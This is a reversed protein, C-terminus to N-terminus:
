QTIILKHQSIFDGQSVSVFYNGSALGTLDLSFINKGVSASFDSTSVVAGQLNYVSVSVPASYNCSVVVNTSNVAPSPYMGGFSISATNDNTITATVVDSYEFAGDNDLQKLRYYYMVNVQATADTYSYTSVTTTNDNGNVFGLTTWNAGDTSREVNFGDNNIELATAWNVNIASEAVEAKVYIMEVPLPGQSGGGFGGGGGSFTNVSYEAVHNGNGLSNYSWTPATMKDYLTIDDSTINMHGNAPNPDKGSAGNVKYFTLDEYANTIPAWGMQAARGTVDAYDTSDFYFRVDVPTNPQMKPTVDWYRGMVVWSNVNNSVYPANSGLILHGLNGYGETLEVKLTFSDVGVTGIDNGNKKLSLLLREDGSNLTNDQDLYYNTWGEATVCERNAYYTGQAHMIETNADMATVTITDTAVNCGGTVTWVMTNVGSSLATLNATANSANDITGNGQIFSWAGTGAAPTTAHITGATGCFNANSGADATVPASTSITINNSTANATTACAANGTMVLSVVDNNNPTTSFSASNSGANVGNVQWQYAPASGGNGPTATFNVVTGNCVNTASANISVTPTVIPNVTMTISNALALPTTSCAANGTMILSVVDNNNLSSNTYTASNSGVNANNLKWQYSPTGGNVPTATFTTSTGSCLTTAPTSISVSPTVVPNVTMNITNSTGSGACSGSNTVLLSVASGNSLSSSTFSNANTGVNAGNVMWQYTASSGNSVSSTFTASAGACITSSPTSISVTPTNAPNITMGVQSSTITSSTACSANSTLVVSVQAGNTLSNSSYTSANTGVNSGNVKWQYAPTTGGNTINATFNVTTGACVNTASPTISVTPTVQPSVTMTLSNSTATASSACTANSTMVCSVIQNNSLNNTTFTASNSGTNSGNVKWQYSPTTGGNTPTATFTTNATACITNSPTSISVSPAVSPTVTMSVSNSTATSSSACAATSTMVCTVASGNTLASSSYTASNSGVNSGNVKWQYSPTGGNTPTATFTASTGSCISTAPTSISVSPTVASNVTMSVSNSTVTSSSACTATSTMVCTVANGNALTSSSYTSSNAGVNSGNVKWQYSPTGGNTPTATFTVSTGSCITSASAAISVSPTVSPTVSMTVTNSTATTSSVCSLNSTMVCTVTNNNALASSTYTASNTGVNSGNVKWQYSPSSGGNTPTATLTVSTGSCISSSSAAIAVSPTVSASTVGLVFNGTVNSSTWYGVSLYYVTGQTSAWSTVANLNWITGADDNCAVETFSGCSGTYVHIETDFNTAAFDTSATMTCGTGTVKYWLNRTHDGCGSSGPINDSNAGANNQTSSTYPLSSINIANACNDNAAAGYSYNLGLVLMALVLIILPRLFTYKVNTVNVLTIDITNFKTKM